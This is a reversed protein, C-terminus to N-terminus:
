GRASIGGTASAELPGRHLVTIADRYPFRLHVCSAEFTISSEDGFLLFLRDRVNALGTGREFISQAEDVNFGPGSDSVSLLICGSERKAEVLIHFTSETHNAGHKVANEVLPQLLLSPVLANRLEQPIDLQTELREGFRAAEISLYLEISQVEDDLSVLPTKSSRLSYRFLDALHETVREAKEPNIRILAAISNLTNFLFHPNIQARLVSLESELVAQHAARVQRQFHLAYFFGNGILSLIFTVTAIGVFLEFPIYCAEIALVGLVYATTGFALVGAIAQFVIHVAAAKKSRLPMLRHALTSSNLQAIVIVASYLQSVLFDVLLSPSEPSHLLRRLALIAFFAVTGFVIVMGVILVQERRKHPTYRLPEPSFNKFLNM